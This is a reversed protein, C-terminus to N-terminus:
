EQVPGAENVEATAEGPILLATNAFAPVYVIVATLGVPQECVWVVVTVTFGAGVVVGVFVLGTHIPPVTLKL